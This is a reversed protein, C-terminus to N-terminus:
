PIQATTGPAEAPRTGLKVKIQLTSGGRKITLTVVDGPAYTDIAAIFQDTSTVPKGDIAKILDGPKLGALAAPSGSNIPAPAGAQGPSIQAGGVSTGNLSVGLYAHRVPKGAIIQTAIRRVTDSPVAFGVGSSSGEGGVTTNNTEIQDNLGLV